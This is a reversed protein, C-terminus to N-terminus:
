QNRDCRDKFNFSLHSFFTNVPFLCPLSSHSLSCSGSFLLLSSLSYLSLPYSCLLSRDARPPSFFLWPHTSAHHPPTRWPSSPFVQIKVDTEVTQIMFSFVLPSHPCPLRLSRALDAHTPSTNHCNVYWLVRAEDERETHFVQM